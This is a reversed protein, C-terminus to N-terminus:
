APSVRAVLAARGGRVEGPRGPRDGAPKSGLPRALTEPLEKATIRLCDRLSSEADAFRKAKIQLAGLYALTGAVQVSEAGYKAKQVAVSTTISPIDGSRSGRAPLVDRGSQVDHDAHGPPRGGAQEEQTSSGGRVTGGGRGAPGGGSLGVGSQAPLHAPQSPRAKTKVKRIRVLEEYLTIAETLRGADQYALACNNM